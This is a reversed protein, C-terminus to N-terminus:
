LRNSDIRTLLNINIEPSFKEECELLLEFVNGGHCQWDFPLFVYKDLFAEHCECEMTINIKLNHVSKQFGWNYSTIVRIRCKKINTFISHRTKSEVSAFIIALVSFQRDFEWSLINWLSVSPTFVNLYLCDENTAMFQVMAAPQPCVKDDVTTEIYGTWPAKPKPNAFRLAGIPPEAFPIGYFGLVGHGQHSTIYKGIVGGGHSLRVKLEDSVKAEGVTFTCCGLIAITILVVLTETCPKM